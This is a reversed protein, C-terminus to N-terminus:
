RLLFEGSFLGKSHFRTQHIVGTIGSSAVLGRCCTVIGTIIHLLNGNIGNCNEMGVGDVCSQFGSTSLPVRKSHNMYKM